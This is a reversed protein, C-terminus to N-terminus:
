GFCIVVLILKVTVMNTIIRVKELRAAKSETAQLPVPGMQFIDRLVENRKLHCTLGSSLLDKFANYQCLRGWSNLLLVELGVKVSREPVDGDQLMSSLSSPLEMELNAM